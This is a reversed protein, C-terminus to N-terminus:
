KVFKNRFKNSAGNCTFVTNQKIECLKLVLETVGNFNTLRM